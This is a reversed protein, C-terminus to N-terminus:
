RGALALSAAAGIGALGGAGLLWSWGSAGPVSLGWTIALPVVLWSMLGIGLAYRGLWRQGQGLGVSRDLWRRGGREVRGLAIVAATQAALALGVLTAVWGRVTPDDGARALAFVAVAAVPWVIRVAWRFRRAVVAADRAWVAAAPRPLLRAVGRDTVLQAAGVTPPPVFALEGVVPMWRALTRVYPRAALWAAGVALLAVVAVRGWAAGPAAGIWGAAGIGGLVPILPAYVLPAASALEPDWAIMRALAGKRGRPGGVSRAARAYAFLALGWATLTTALALALARAVPARGILPVLAVLATGLAVLLLRIAQRAFIATASVGSRRLLGADAPSLFVSYAFFALPAALLFGWLMAAGADALGPAAAARLLGLALVLALLAGVWVGVGARTSTKWAHRLDWGLLASSKM